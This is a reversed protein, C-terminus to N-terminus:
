EKRELERYDIKGMGTLPLADLFEYFDPMEYDYLDKEITRTIEQIIMDKNKENEAKLVLFAKVLCGSEADPVPVVACQEVFSCKCIAGEVASAFIKFGNKTFMRKIRGVIHVNGGADVFGLDGSHIWTSGDSHTKKVTNTEGAYRGFYGLMITPGTIAIEGVEDYTCERYNGNEELFASVVNGIFPIGSGCEEGRAQGTYTAAATVETMGYGFTLSAKSQHEKLFVNFKEKLKEDLRDAGVIIEKLYSLNETKLEKCEMVAHLASPVSIVHHCRFQNMLKGLEDPAVKPVMVSIVGFCLHCHLCNNLGYYTWPPAINLARDGIRYNHHNCKVMEVSSNINYNSMMVGKPIGTTGGTYAIVAPDDREAASEERDSYKVTDATPKAKKGANLFKGWSLIRKDDPLDTKLSNDRKQMVIRLMGPFSQLPHVAVVQKIKTSDLITEFKPVVGELAVLLTSESEELQERLTEAGSRPDLMNAVAGLRNIAYFAYVVEPINPLCVSVIEGRKVGYAILSHYVKDIKHFLQSYKIKVGYYEIAVLHLFNKSNERLYEYMSCEPYTIQKDAESYCNLWPKDISPYGTLQEGELNM